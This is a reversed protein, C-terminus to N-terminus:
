DILILAWNVSRISLYISVIDLSPGHYPKAPRQDQESPSEHTGSPTATTSLTTKNQFKPGHLAMHAIRALTWYDM